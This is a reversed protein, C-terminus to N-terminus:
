PLVPEKPHCVLDDPFRMYFKEDRSLERPVAAKQEPRFEEARRFSQEEGFGM